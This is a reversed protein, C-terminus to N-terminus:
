EGTWGKNYNSRGKTNERNATADHGTKWKSCTSSSHGKRVRWGHTWCYGKPDLGTFNGTSPNSHNNCNGSGGSKTALQATLTTIKGQATVLHATLTTIHRALDTNTTTLTIFATWESTTATALNALTTVTEQQMESMTVENEQLQCINTTYGSAQATLGDDQPDKFLEAFFIKFNAWTRDIAPKHRWNKFDLSYFGTANVITYTISMIQAPSYPNQSIVADTNDEIQTVFDKFCTNASIATKLAKDFDQVDEEKLSGYTTWLHTLITLTRVQSFGINKNKLTQYFKEPIYQQIKAKVAKDVNYYEKFFQIEEIYKTKLEALVASTVPGTPIQFLPGTNAPIIFQDNCLLLLTAPPAM